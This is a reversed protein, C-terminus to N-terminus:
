AGIEFREFRKIKINEGTKAIMEKILEAVTLQDNKVYPQELLCIESYLKKVKGDVIKDIVKEPKGSDVMQERLITKEHELLKPDVTEPDLYLPKAAAIHMSLDKVFKKFEDTRAVFDTECNVEVLVGVRSGPHIYAEVIGEATDKGSRKSATAAGKKRLIDIAKEIDGNAEELAGKCALMGAATRERLEQILKMPIKAM